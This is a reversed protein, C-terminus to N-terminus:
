EVAEQKAQDDASQYLAVLKPIDNKRKCEPCLRLLARTNDLTEQSVDSQQMLALMYGIEKAPAFPMGCQNCAAIQYDAQEFLDQKNMVALEFDPSLRIAGTPCVEECRACYICRGVFLHWSQLSQDLDTSMSLANSPCAIACAACAICLQPDHHPKGRFGPMVEVPAFPYAITADGVKLVEKILKLM